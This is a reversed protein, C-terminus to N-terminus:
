PLRGSQTSMRGEYSRGRVTLYRRFRDGL